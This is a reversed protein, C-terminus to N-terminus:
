FLSFYSGASTWAVIAMNLWHEGLMAGRLEILVPYYYLVHEMTKLEEDCGKCM